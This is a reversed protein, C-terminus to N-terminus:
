TAGTIQQSPPSLPVPEKGPLVDTMAVDWIPAARASSSRRRAPRRAM